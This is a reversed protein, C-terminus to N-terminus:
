AAEDKVEETMLSYAMQAVAEECLDDEEWSKIDIDIGWIFSPRVVVECSYDEEEFGFEDFRSMTVWIVIRDPRSKDPVIQWGFPMMDQARRIHKIGREEYGRNMLDLGTAILQVLTGEYMKDNRLISRPSINEQSSTYQM